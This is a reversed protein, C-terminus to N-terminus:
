KIIELMRGFLAAVGPFQDSRDVTNGREDRYMTKGGRMIITKAVKKGNRKAIIVLVSGYDGMSGRRIHVTTDSIYPFDYSGDERKDLYQDIDRLINELGAELLIQKLDM